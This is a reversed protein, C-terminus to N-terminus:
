KRLPSAKSKPMAFVSELVFDQICGHEDVKGTGATRFVIGGTKILHALAKGPETDLAVVDVEVLDRSLDIRTVRHSAEALTPPEDSISPGAVITGLVEGKKLKEKFDNVARLVVDRPYIRGNGNVVDTMLVTFTQTM